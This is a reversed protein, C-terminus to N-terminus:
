SDLSEDDNELIDWESLYLLMRVFPQRQQRVPVLLFKTLFNLGFPLARSAEQPLASARGQYPAVIFLIEM